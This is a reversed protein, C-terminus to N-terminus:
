ISHSNLYWVSSRLLCLTCFQDFIFCCDPWLPICLYDLRLTSSATTCFRRNLVGSTMQPWSLVPAVISKPLGVYLSRTRSTSCTFVNEFSYWCRLTSLNFIRNAPLNWNIFQHFRWVSHIIENPLGQYPVQYPLLTSKISVLRFHVSIEFVNRLSMRECVVQFVEKDNLLLVLDGDKYEKGRAIKFYVFLISCQIFLANWCICSCDRIIRFLLVKNRKTFSSRFGRWFSCHTISCQIVLTSQGGYHFSVSKISQLSLINYTTLADHYVSVRVLVRTDNVRICCVTM